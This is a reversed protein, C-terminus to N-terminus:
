FSINFKLYITITPQNNYLTQDSMAINQNNQINSNTNRENINFTENNSEANIGLSNGCNKCISAGEINNTGCKQCIM